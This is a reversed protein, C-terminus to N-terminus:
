TFWIRAAPTSGPSTTNTPPASGFLAAGRAPAAPVPGEPRSRNPEAAVAASSVALRTLVAAATAIAAASPLEDPPVPPVPPM